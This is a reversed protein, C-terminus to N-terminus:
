GQSLAGDGEVASSIRGAADVSVVFGCSLVAVKGTTLEHNRWTGM